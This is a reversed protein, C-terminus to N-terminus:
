NSKSNRNTKRNLLESGALTLRRRRIYEGLTIGYTTSFVRQFHYSSSYARKAVENYDIKECINEEIYNLAREMAKIFDSM